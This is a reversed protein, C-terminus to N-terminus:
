LPIYVGCEVSCKFENEELYDTSLNYGLADCNKLATHIKHLESEHYVQKAGINSAHTALLINDKKTRDQVIQIGIPALPRGPDEHGTKCLYKSVLQSNIHDKVNTLYPQVLSLVLEEAMKSKSISTNGYILM